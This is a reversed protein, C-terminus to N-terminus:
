VPNAAALTLSFAIMHHDHRPWSQRGKTIAKGAHREPNESCLPFSYASYGGRGQPKIERKRHSRMM